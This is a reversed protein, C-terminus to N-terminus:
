KELGALLAKDYNNAINVREVYDSGNQFALYNLGNSDNLQYIIREKAESYSKKEADWIVLEISVFDPTSCKHRLICYKPTWNKESYDPYWQGTKNNLKYASNWVYVEKKLFNGNEDYAFKSMSKAEYSGFNGPVYMTQSVTKGDERKTDYFAEQAKVAVSNMVLGALVFGVMRLVNTKM